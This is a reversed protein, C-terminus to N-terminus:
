PRSSSSRSPWRPQCRCAPNSTTAFQRSFIALDKLTVRGGFGPIQIERHLGQGSEVITLPVAGQQRLMAAAASETTAEVSGKSRKGQSDVVEYDYTKTMTSTM